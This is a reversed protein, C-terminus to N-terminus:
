TTNNLDLTVPLFCLTRIHCLIYICVCACLCIYIYVCLVWRLKEYWESFAGQEGRIVSTPSTDLLPLLSLSIRSLTLTSRQTKNFDARYTLPRTASSLPQNMEGSIKKGELGQACACVCVNVRKRTSSDLSGPAARQLSLLMAEALGVPVSSLHFTM